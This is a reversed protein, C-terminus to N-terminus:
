RQGGFFALLRQLWGRKALAAATTASTSGGGAERGLQEFLQNLVIKAAGELMRSGVAAVKGSVQASYDYRLLTGTGSPELTVLGSGRASGVSSLGSGALRLSRPPDLESLGVEAAYRAKIMGVGVTVDARYQNEGIRQLANCGPIVKALAAPDLLVNFVAEPTAPLQVEGKAALSKGGSKGDKAPAADAAQTPRPKSPPPDDIGILEMVKSPTMPLRIDAVGLADALANAICPPTSMNNAEGLGKAGLPTFPSPTEMHIITPEPVECTTPVLYDAFTGSQFSGDDGYRFEEM